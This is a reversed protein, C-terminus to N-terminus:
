REARRREEGPGAARGAIELSYEEKAKGLLDILGHSANKLEEYTARARDNDGRSMADVAEKALRHVKAHPDEINKFGALHGCQKMGDSYYWQGFSCTHHDPLDGARVEALGKVCGGIRELFLEHKVKARNFHILSEGTRFRGASEKLEEALVALSSADMMVEGSMLRIEEAVHSTETVNTAIEVATASQQDVATAIQMIQGQASEVNSVMQQLSAGLAEISDLARSVIASATDMSESTKVSGTQVVQIMSSIQSTADITRQALKKVEDAVVAFGRGADGARAAEIAANLALLNTQDAIDNIVTVISGIEEVSTNLGAIMGSLENTATAISHVGEVAERTAKKGEGAAEVAIDTTTKASSTSEAIDQITQSMEEAATAIQTARLWQDKVGAAAKESGVKLSKGITSLVDANSLIADVTDSLSRAMSNASKAVASIEDGYQDSIVVDLNGQAM